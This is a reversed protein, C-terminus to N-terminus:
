KSLDGPETPPQAYTQKLIGGGSPANSPATTGPLHPQHAFKLAFKNTWTQIIIPAIKCM